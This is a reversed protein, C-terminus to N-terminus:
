CVTATTFIKVASAEDNYGTLQSNSSHPQLCLQDGSGDGFQALKADVETRNAWASTKNNFNYTELAQWSGRDHFELMRGAYEKNEWLCVWGVPCDNFVFPTASELVKSGDSFTTITVGASTVVTTSAETQGGVSEGVAVQAAAGLLALACVTSLVLRLNRPM